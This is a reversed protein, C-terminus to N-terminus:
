RNKKRKKWRYRKRLFHMEMDDEGTLCHDCRRNGKPQGSKNQWNM